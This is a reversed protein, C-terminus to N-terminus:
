RVMPPMEGEFMKTIATVLVSRVCLQGHGVTERAGPVGVFRIQFYREKKESREIAVPLECQFIPRWNETRGFKLPPNTLNIVIRPEDDIIYIGVYDASEGVEVPQELPLDLGASVYPLASM